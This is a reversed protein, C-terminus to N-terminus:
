IREEKIGSAPGIDADSRLCRAKHLCCSGFARTASANVSGGDGAALMVLAGAPQGTLCCVTQM